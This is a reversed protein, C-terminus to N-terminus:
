AREKRAAIEANVEAAIARARAHLNEAREVILRALERGDTSAEAMQRASIIAPEYDRKM